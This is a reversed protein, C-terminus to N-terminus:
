LRKTIFIFLCAQFQGSLRLISYEKLTGGGGGGDVVRHPIQKYVSIEM